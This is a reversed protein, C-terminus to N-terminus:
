RDEVVESIPKGEISQSDTLKDKSCAVLTAVVAIVSLIIIANRKLHSRKM